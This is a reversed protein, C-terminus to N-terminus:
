DIEFERRPRSGLADRRLRVRGNADVEVHYWWATLDQLATFHIDVRDLTREVSPPVALVHPLRICASPGDPSLVLTEVGSLAVALEFWGEPPLDHPRLREAQVVRQLSAGTALEPREACAVVADSVVCHTHTWGMMCASEANTAAFLRLGAGQAHHRLPVIASPRQGQAREGLAVHADTIRDFTPGADLEPPLSGFMVAPCRDASATPWLPHTRPAVVTEHKLVEDIPVLTPEAAAADGADGDIAEADLSETEVIAFEDTPLTAPTCGALALTLSCARRM